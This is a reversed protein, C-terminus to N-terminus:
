PNIDGAFFCFDVFDFWNSLTIDIKISEDKEDYGLDNTLVLPM